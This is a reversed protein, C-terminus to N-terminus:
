QTATGNKRCWLLHRETGFRLEEVDTGIVLPYSFRGSQGEKCLEISVLVILIGSERVTEISSVGYMSKFCLGSIRTPVKTGPDVDLRYQAVNSFELVERNDSRMAISLIGIVLGVILKIPSSTKM